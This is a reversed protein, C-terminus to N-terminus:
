PILLERMLVSPWRVAEVVNVFRVDTYGSAELNVKAIAQERGHIDGSTPWFPHVIVVAREMKENKIVNLGTSADMSERVQAFVGLCRDWKISQGSLLEVMDLALRWDLLHHSHRNDYSRLCDQCSATCSSSHDPMAWTTNGLTQMQSIVQSLVEPKGLETAYGAGNELEDAVFM